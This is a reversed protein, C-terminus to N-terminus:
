DLLFSIEQQVPLEIIREKIALSENILKYIVLDSVNLLESCKGIRHVVKQLMDMLEDYEFKRNFPYNSEIYEKIHYMDPM